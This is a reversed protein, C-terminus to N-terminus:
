LGRITYVNRSYQRGRRDDDESRAVSILYHSFLIDLSPKIDRPQTGIKQTITKHNMSMVASDNPRDAILQMYLKLACLPVRGANSIQPLQVKLYSLPLQGWGLDDTKEVLTYENKYGRQVTVIGLEEILFIGKSVMPRSLGTLKELESFSLKVSMSQYNVHLSIAMICKLGAISQGAKDGAKFKDLLGKRVWWTPCKAFRKGNSSM